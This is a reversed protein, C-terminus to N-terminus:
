DSSTGYFNANLILNLMDEDVSDYPLCVYRYGNAFAWNMKLNDVVVQKHFTSIDKHFLSCKSYHQGGHIEILLNLGPIYYDFRTPGDNIVPGRYERIFPINWESLKM